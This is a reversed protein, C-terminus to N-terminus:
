KVCLPDELVMSMVTTMRDVLDRIYIVYKIDNSQDIWSMFEEMRMYLVNRLKYSQILMTTKIIFFELLETVLQNRQFQSQAQAMAEVKERSFDIDEQFNYKVALQSQDLPIAVSVVCISPIIVEIPLFDPFHHFLTYQDIDDFESWLPLARIMLCIRVLGDGLDVKWTGYKEFWSEKTMEMDGQNMGWQDHIHTQQHNYTRCSYGVEYGHGALQRPLIRIEQGVTGGTYQSVLILGDRAHAQFALEVRRIFWDYDTLQVHVESLDMEHKMRFVIAAIDTPADNLMRQLM